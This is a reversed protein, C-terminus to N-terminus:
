RLWPLWRKRQVFSTSTEEDASKVIQTRRDREENPRINQGRLRQIQLPSSPSLFLTEECLKLVFFEEAAAACRGKPRPRLSACRVAVSREVM